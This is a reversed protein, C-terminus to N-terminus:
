AVIGTSILLGIALGSAAFARGASRTGFATRILQLLRALMAQGPLEPIKRKERDDDNRTPPHRRQPASPTTGAERSGGGFGIFEVYHDFASRIRRGESYRSQGGAVTNSATTLGGVDPAQITPIGITTGGVKFNDANAVFRAAVSLNGSVRVGADGADVTGRPALLFVNAKSSDATSQLAAIGAGTVGGLEDVTVVGDDDVHVVIPPFNASTKPGQGANLDANSSWMLINGGQETFLRSQNLLFSGDTFTNIDGGRLTLVGEGGAPISRISANLDVNSSNQQFFQSYANYLNFGQYTRRAAQVSTAVVSGALVRGGPGLININGGRQTEISALRLDLDGTSVIATNTAGGELSNATYGLSAPFLTNVAQYGRSYHLYSPSNVDAPAALENFYVEVLFARQRLEPLQVFASYAQSATVSTTNFDKMLHAPDNQQMWAILRDTYDGLANAATGPAVYADRLADFDAGKGVGFLVNLDAGQATKLYPNWGNGVSIVGGTITLMQTGLNDNFNDSLGQKIVASNLFPGMNRGAELFFEGPGGIVFTNGQLTPEAPGTPVIGTGGNQTPGIAQPALLLTTATIDRGAVIRTVDSSALNQGFFMMNVIDRGATIRAQKPVNLTVNNIDNGAYLYVPTPDSAHTLNKNHQNAIATDSTNSLVTPFTTEPIGPDNDLMAIATPSINWGAFLELQGVPSATMLMQPVAISGAISVATLSGPYSPVNTVEQAGTQFFGNGAIGFDTIDNNTITINGNAVLNLGSYASYTGIGTSQWVTVLGTSIPNSGALITQQNPGGGGLATVDQLTISGRASLDVTADDIEISLQDRRVFPLNVILGGSPESPGHFETSKLGYNLATADGIDGGASLTAAGSMVDVRGGLIDRGATIAVNGGGYRAAMGTTLGSSPTATGYVVSADTATTIDSVDRGATVTVNGGGLAGLGERFLQPDIGTMTVTQNLARIFNRSTADWPHANMSWEQTTGPALGNFYLGVRGLVDNGANVTVNGGGGLTVPDAQLVGAFGYIGQSTNAQSFVSYQGTETLLGATSDIKVSIGSAPDILTEVEPSVLHGMTYIAPGGIQLTGGVGYGLNINNGNGSVNFQQTPDTLIQGTRDNIYTIANSGRLDVNGSAALSIAGTGTRILSQVVSTATNSTTPKTGPVGLVTSLNAALTQQLPVLQQAVFAKFNAVTMAIYTTTAATAAVGGVPASYRYGNTNSSDQVLGNATAFTNFLSLVLARNPDTGLAPNTTNATGLYLIAVGTDSEGTFNAGSIFALWASLSDVAVASGTPPTSLGFAPNTDVNFGAAVSGYSLTTNTLIDFFTYSSIGEVTLTSAVSRNVATPDVSAGAVSTGALNAAGAVLRYSSSSVFSGNALLPFVVASGLPDGGGNVNGNADATFSGLAAPSNGPASYPASTSNVAGPSATGSLYATSASSLSLGLYVGPTNAGTWASWQTLATTGNGTNFGGNGTVNFISSTGNLRNLFLENTQDRFLFTGDSISGKIDLNGGARLTIAGPEGSVSGGTRYTLKTDQQFILAEDGPKVVYGSTPDGSVQLQPNVTVYGAAQAATLNVTGAGLNWNSALVINGTDALDIGPRAHFNALTNLGGLKAYAASLDFNQIFNVVTGPGNDGLFNLGAVATTTGDVNTTDLGIRTDLTVTNTTSDYTVGTYNGSGAVATLDWRKFAEVVVSSAGVVSAKDAVIVNVNQKGNGDLYVPARFTVSGGQDGQVLQYYTIGNQVLPVLRDGPHTASVDIVAGQKVNIVGSTGSISGDQNTTTIGTFDTGLTVNGAQAQRTDYTANGSADYGYGSATATLKATGELTVSNRGYLSINGGNVGSTDITGAIDVAGGDATLNVSGSKLTQGAGLNIDGTRTRLDFGGTFGVAGVQSNLAVLDVAGKTDLSFVGGSGGAEGFGNLTATGFDVSGNPTSLALTGANGTGNGVSLTANGLAIGGSGAAALSVSGGAASRTQPDASDGFTKDYGPAELVAGNALTITDSSQVVVAGATARVTTGSITVSNGTIAISSGPVGTLPAPDIAAMQANTVLVAGGTKFTIGYGTETPLGTVARDGLFATTLTLNANGADFVGSAGGTFIGGTSTLNVGAGFGSTGITGSGFAISNAAINLTGTGGAVSGASGSNGLQLQDAALNVVGSQLSLLNQADFTTDGFQYSGNDFGISTQSHLVLNNAKSLAAQLAPTIAVIGAGVASNTFAMASAGLAISQAQLNANSAVTINASTDFGISTGQATINGVTLTGGPYTPGSPDTIRTVLRQPGNAVRFLAGQASDIPLAVQVGTQVATYTGQGNIIYNGGRQDNLTGTAILTAGDSLTLKSAVSNTPLDDVVLVIEPAILPHAADNSVTITQATIALNTTGDLNETRVGGILLSGANINNLSETTLHIAGDAPAQSLSSVIDFNKGGIDVEAGRGGPAAATSFASNIQLNVLPNLALRAADIGLPPALTGNTAAQAVANANGSTTVIDSNQLIVPQSEVSFLREQSQSTGAIASGYYGSVLLSGDRKQLGTGAIVNAAGTQEVVRMGGPLLAYQAPLLTYWGAALGPAADLYVRQGVASGSYLNGYGASYIPDYTAVPINALGPVIAYVQRGDAYQLGKDSSYQDANLRSLVDRSGGTGSVFEYAYVDGGGTLDVTAGSNITISSGNISMVKAPPGTLAANGGPSFYWEKQDTTTGYPIVLGDASVGTISGALLTVNQTAPAFITGTSVVPVYASNGGLTLTGFPVRVVGGQVINAAYIGLNGGASYPTAPDSTSSRGISITGNAAASSIAFTTGTTPYIQAAILNLNGNAALAGDLTTATQTSAVNYTLQWPQVGIFRMDGAAEFTANAVSKDVILTGTFDIANAKFVVSGNGAQGGGSSSLTDIATVFSVYAADIEMKGGSQIVPTVQTNPSITMGAVQSNQASTDYPVGTLVFQNRLKITVDGSSTITGMAVISDFGSNAIMAASVTNATPTTPDNQTFVPDFFGLTGGNAQPAGGHANILAGTLTGGNAAILNGADSWVPTASVKAANLLSGGSASVQDFSGSTGSIDIKSGPQAVLTEPLIWGNDMTVGILGFLGNSGTNSVTGTTALTGGGVIKGSVIPIGGNVARPNLIVAGSLDTVSGPALM